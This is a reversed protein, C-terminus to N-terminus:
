SDPPNIAFEQPSSSSRKRAFLHGLYHFGHMPKFPERADHVQLWDRQELEEPSKGREFDERVQRDQEFYEKRWRGTQIWYQLPDPSNGNTDSAAKTHLKEEAACGSPEARLRKSLPQDRTPSSPHVAEQKERARKRKRSPASPKRLIQSHQQVEILDASRYPSLLLSLM